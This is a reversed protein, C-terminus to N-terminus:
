VLNLLDELQELQIHPLSITPEQGLAMDRNEAYWATQYGAKLAGWVDKELNDGVHLINSAPLKLHLRANDFMAPNPKMPSTISAKFCASFYPSLGIQELNVNGNTIAVLPLKESLTKLLAHINANLSFNSRHYYFYEFCEKAAAEAKSTSFGLSKFGALMSIYRLKGMDSKLNPNEKLANKQQLMWFKQSVNETAPYHTQMWTILAQNAEIIIPHNDYLTDDLDFTIAKVKQLKKYFIM